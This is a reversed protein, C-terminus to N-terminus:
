LSSRGTARGGCSCCSLFRIMALCCESKLSLSGLLGVRCAHDRFSSGAATTAAAAAAAAAAVAAAARRQQQQQVQCEALFDFASGFGERFCSSAPGCMARGALGDAFRGVSAGLIADASVCSGVQLRRRRLPQAPCYHWMRSMTPSYISPHISPQTPPHNTPQNSPHNTPRNTTSQSSPQNTPQISPQISPQHNTQQISLHTSPHTPPSPRSAHGHHM